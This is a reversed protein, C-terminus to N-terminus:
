SVELSRISPELFSNSEPRALPAEHCLGPGLFEARPQAKVTELGDTAV